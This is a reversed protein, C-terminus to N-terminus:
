QVVFDMQFIPMMTAFVIFGVVGGLLIIMAPELLKTFLNVSREVEKARAVAIRELVKELQNTQEATSVMQGLLDPLFRANLLSTGISGGRQVTAAVQQLDARLILNRCGAIVVELAKHVPVGHTLLASLIRAFQSVEAKIILKGFFPVRLKFSDVKQRFAPKQLNTKLAFGAALLGTFLFVWYRVFFDSTALLLRTPLPLTQGTEAFLSVIGPVVFTMLLTLTILGMSLMLAPYALAARIQKQVDDENELFDALHLLVLELMGGTEGARLMNVYFSSFLRPWAACAESLQKGDQIRSVLDPIVQQMPGPRTQIQLMRLASHVTMGAELMNALQSTFQLIDARSARRSIRGVLGRKGTTERAPYIEIPFLGDRALQSALVDASDAGRRGEVIEAPTSKAIYKFLPV